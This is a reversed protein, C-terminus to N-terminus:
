RDHLEFSVAARLAGTDILPSDTGKQALTSASNKPGITGFLARVAEAAAEGVGSLAQRPAAGDLANKLGDRLALELTDGSLARQLVPRAPIGQLPSGNEHLRLLAANGIDGSRANASQSIGVGCRIRNLASLASIDEASGREAVIVRM